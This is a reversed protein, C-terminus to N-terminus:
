TELGLSAECKVLEENVGRVLHNGMCVLLDRETVKTTEKPSVVHGLVGTVETHAKRARCSRWEPERQTARLGM